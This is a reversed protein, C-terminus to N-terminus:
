QTHQLDNNFKGQCCNVVVQCLEVSIKDELVLIIFIICVHM